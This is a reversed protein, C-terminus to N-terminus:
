AVESEPWLDAIFADIREAQERRQTALYRLEAVLVSAAMPQRASDQPDDLVLGLAGAHERAVYWGPSTRVVRGLRAMRDLQVRVSSASDSGVAARAEEPSFPRAETRLLAAIKDPMSVMMVETDISVPEAPPSPAEVLRLPPRGARYAGHVTRHAHGLRILELLAGRAAARNAYRGALRLETLTAEGEALREHIATLRSATSLVTDVANGDEDQRDDEEDGPGDPLIPLRRKGTDGREVYDKMSEVDRLSALKALGTVEVQRIRERTLNTLIGVEELTAGGRDAVDLACTQALDWPELDPYNLKIAGTKPSVDLYLHHACSVFPCPRPGDVCEGRTEPLTPLDSTDGLLLRGLELERKTMRKISVTKARVIRARRSRKQERTPLSASQEPVESLSAEAECSTEAPRPMRAQGIAIVNGM